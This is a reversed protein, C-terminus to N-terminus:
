KNTSTSTNKLLDLNHDIGIIIDHSNLKTLQKILNKYELLFKKVNTNPPRYDSVLLINRKDTKVELIVHELIETDQELDPRPRSRLNKNIVIGVGGGLKDTRVKSETKYGKIDVLKEKIKTLWTECILIADTDTNAILQQLQDQKNLLGRINLQIIRLDNKVKNLQQNGDLEVYKCGQIDLEDKLNYQDKNLDLLFM